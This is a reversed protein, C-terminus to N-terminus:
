FSTRQVKYVIREAVERALTLNPTVDGLKQVQELFRSALYSSQNRIVANGMATLEELVIEREYKGKM